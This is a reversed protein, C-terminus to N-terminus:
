CICWLIGTMNRGSGHQGNQAKYKRKHRFDVLTNLSPDVVLTVDGGNGGHGGAPGGRPVFKERRFAVIGDGGNGGKVFIRAEDFFM